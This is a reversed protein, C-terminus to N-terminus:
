RKTRGRPSEFEGRGDELENNIENRSKKKIENRKEFLYLSQKLKDRKWKPQKVFELKTMDFAKQFEESSLFEERRNKYHSSIEVRRQRVEVLTYFHPGSYWGDPILSTEDRPDVKHKLREAEHAELELQRRKVPDNNNGFLSPSNITSTMANKGAIEKYKKLPSSSGTPSAGSSPSKVPSKEELPLPNGDTDLLHERGKKSYEDLHHRIETKRENVHPAEQGVLSKMKQERRLRAEEQSKKLEEEIIRRRAEAAAEAADGGDQKTPM